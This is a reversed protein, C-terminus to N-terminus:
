AKFEDSGMDYGKGQPRKDGDLDEYVGANAGRNICPSDSRLHLDIDGIFRPDANINNPGWNLTSGTDVYVASRGGKM